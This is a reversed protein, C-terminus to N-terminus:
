LSWGGDFVNALTIKKQTPITYTSGQQWCRDFFTTFSTIANADKSYYGVVETVTPITRETYLYRSGYVAFTGTLDSLRYDNKIRTYQEIPM